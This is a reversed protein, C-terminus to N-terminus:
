VLGLLTGCTGTYVTLNFNIVTANALKTTPDQPCKYEFNQNDANFLVGINHGNPFKGSCESADRCEVNSGHLGPERGCTRRLRVGRGRSRAM